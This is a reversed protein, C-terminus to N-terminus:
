DAYRKLGLSRSRDGGCSRVGLKEEERWSGKEVRHFIGWRGRKNVRRLNAFEILFRMSLRYPTTTIYVLKGRSGRRFSREAAEPIAVSRSFSVSFSRLIFSLQNQSHTKFRQLVSLQALSKRHQRM